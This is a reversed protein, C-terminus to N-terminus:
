RSLQNVASSLRSIHRSATEAKIVGRQAARAILSIADQLAARAAGANKESLATRVKKEAARMTTKHALNRLRRRMRQRNRKEASPVNAM